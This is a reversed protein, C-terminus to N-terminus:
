VIWWGLLVMIRCLALVGMTVAIAAARQAHTM